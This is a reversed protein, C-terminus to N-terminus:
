RTNPRNVPEWKSISSLFAIPPALVRITFIENIANRLFATELAKDLRVQKSNRYYHKEQM